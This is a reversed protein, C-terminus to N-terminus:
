RSSIVSSSSGSKETCSIASFSSSRFLTHSYVPQSLSVNFSSTSSITLPSASPSSISSVGVGSGRSVGVGGGAGPGAEAVGVGGEGVGPGAEGVGVGGGGVGRAGVGVGDITVGAGGVSVGYSTGSTWAGDSTAALAASVHKVLENADEVNVLERVAAKEQEVVKEDVEPMIEAAPEFKKEERKKTEADQRKADEAKAAAGIRSAPEDVPGAAVVEPAEFAPAAPLESIPSLAFKDVAGSNAISVADSVM